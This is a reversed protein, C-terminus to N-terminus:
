NNCNIAFQWSSYLQPPRIHDKAIQIFQANQLLNVANALLSYCVTYEAIFKYYVVAFRM